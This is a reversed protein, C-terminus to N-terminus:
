KHISYVYDHLDVLPEYRVPLEEMKLNNKEILEFFENDATCGKRTEGIYIIEGNPNKNLFAKLASSAIKEGYPPWSMILVDADYKEIASIGDIKEVETFNETRLLDYNNDNKDTVDTAIVNIGKSQLRDAFLGTGSCIELCKKNQLYKGLDEITEMNLSAYGTILRVADYDYRLGTISNLKKEFEKLQKVTKPFLFLKEEKNLSKLFAKFFTEDIKYSNSLNFFKESLTDNKIHKLAYLILIKDYISRDYKELDPRVHEQNKFYETLKDEIVQEKNSFALILEHEDLFSLDLNQKKLDEYTFTKKKEDPLSDIFKTLPMPILGGTVYMKKGYILFSFYDNKFPVNEKILKEKFKEYDELYKKNTAKELDEFAINLFSYENRVDEIREM